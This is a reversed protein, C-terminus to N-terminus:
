RNKCRVRKSHAHHSHSRLVASQRAAFESLNLAAGAAYGNLSIVFALKRRCSRLLRAHFALWIIQFFVRRHRRQLQNSQRHLRCSDAFEGQAREVSYILAWSKVPVMLSKHSSFSPAYPLIRYSWSKAEQTSPLSKQDGCIHTM